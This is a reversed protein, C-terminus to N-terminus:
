ILKPPDDTQYDFFDINDNKLYFTVEFQGDVGQENVEVKQVVEDTYGRLRVASASSLAPVRMVVKRDGDRHVDYKWQTLGKLEFQSSDAIRNMEASVQSHSQACVETTSIALAIGVLTRTLLSLNRM